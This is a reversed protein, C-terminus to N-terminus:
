GTAKIVGTVQMSANAVTDGVRSKQSQSVPAPFRQDNDFPFTSITHRRTALANRHDPNPAALADIV